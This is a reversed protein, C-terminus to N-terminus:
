IVDINRNRLISCCTLYGHLYGTQWDKTTLYTKPDKKHTEILDFARKELDSISMPEASLSATAEFHKLLQEVNNELTINM